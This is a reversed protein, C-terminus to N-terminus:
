NKSRKKQVSPFLQMVLLNLETWGIPYGMLWEVWTPNLQGGNQNLSINVQAELSPSKRQREAPCDPASRATPTPFMAVYSQLTRGSQSKAKPNYTKTPGRNSADPTPLYGGAIEKTIRELKRLPYVVGDLMMGSKMLKGSLQKLDGHPLQLSTKLSYSRPSSKKPWACLRLFYDAESEKWAKGLEQLLSIKVRSDETSSTSKPYTQGEYLQLMMGFQHEQCNEKLCEPYCCKKHSPNSTVTHLQDLGSQCHLLSEESVRFYIWAM